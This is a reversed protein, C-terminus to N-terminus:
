GRPLLGISTLLKVQQAQAERSQGAGQAVARNQHSAGSRRFFRYLVGYLYSMRLIRVVKVARIARFM